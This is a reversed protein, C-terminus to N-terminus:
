ETRPSNAAHPRWARAAARISARAPLNAAIRAAHNSVTIRGPATITGQVTRKSQLNEVNILDGKAGSELAKGRTSLLIGPAEYVITVGENRHVIEPKMLEARRLPAGARLTNRAALGIVNASDTVVDAGVAKRPRREHVLDSARLVEGREIRRACLVAEVTEVVGGTVHLPTRRLIASAPLDLVVDFRATLPNYDLRVVRLEGKAAAEVQFTRLGRDFTVSLNEAAGLGHRGALAAAISAEVEKQAIARSAHTVTVSAIGATDFLYLNHERVAAVVEATPLAGTEGPDPARFVAVDALAGAHEFLDGIRVLDGAITVVPKLTPIPNLKGATQAAVQAPAALAVLLALTCIRIM